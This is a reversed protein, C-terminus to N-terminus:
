LAEIAPLPDKYTSTGEETGTLTLGGVVSLLLDYLADECLDYGDTGPEQNDVEWVLGVSFAKKGFALGGKHGLSDVNISTVRLGVWQGHLPEEEVEFVEFQPHKTEHEHRRGHRCVGQGVERWDDHPAHAVADADRMQKTNRRHHEGDDARQEDGPSGVLVPLTGRSDRELTENTDGAQHHRRVAFAINGSVPPKEESESAAYTSEGPAIDERCLVGEILSFLM